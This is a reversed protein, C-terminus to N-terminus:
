PRLEHAVADVFEAVVGLMQEHSTLIARRLELVDARTAPQDADPASRAHRPGSRIEAQVKQRSEVLRRKIERLKADTTM